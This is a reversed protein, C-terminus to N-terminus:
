KKWKGRTIIFMAVAGVALTVMVIANQSEFATSWYEKFNRWYRGAASPRGAALAPAATVSLVFLVAAFRCIFASM